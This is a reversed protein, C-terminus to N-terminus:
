FNRAVVVGQYTTIYLADNSFVVSQPKSLAGPLPGTTFGEQGPTGILTTVVGAPTIKRVTHNDTDAVYLNGKTDITMGQPRNFRAATGTGDASGPQFEAGAFVSSVGASSIKFIVHSGGDAVYLNGSSDMAMGNSIYPTGRGEGFPKFSASQTLPIRAYTSVQGAATVKRIAQNVMDAVLMDGNGMNVIGNPSKFRAESGKGDVLGFKWEVGAVPTIVGAPNIQRITGVTDAVYVNGNADTALGGIQDFNASVGAITSVVGAATVKRVIHKGSMFDNLYLNGNIDAALNGPAYFGAAAGVGDLAYRINIAGALTTVVGAANIKRVNFNGADAVYLNGASDSVIAVPQAFRAAAGSGDDIGVQGSSGAVTSVMGAQTIKRIISNFTDAVFINGATDVAVARPTNFRSVAVTGDVSGTEGARGAVTTVAGAPTMKRISHNYSDAIYVNGATDTALGSPWFFRANSGQGDDAASVGPKGAITTVMGAPTLKRITHEDAIYLNGASDITMGSLMGFSAASGQGDAMAASCVSGALTSSVAAPTLKRVVCAYPDLVYINGAADSAMHQAKFFKVSSGSGEAYGFEGGAFSTVAGAPTIKRVRKDDGVYLNGSTDLTIGNLGSFRANTGTGDVIGPGGVNGALLAISGTGTTTGTNTGTNTGTTNGTSGTSGGTTGPATAGPAASGGGGCATLIAATILCSLSARFPIGSLSHSFAKFTIM